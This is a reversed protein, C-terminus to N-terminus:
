RQRGREGTYDSIRQFTLTPCIPAMGWQLPGLFTCPHRKKRDREKWRGEKQFSVPRKLGKMKEAQKREENKKNEKQINGM